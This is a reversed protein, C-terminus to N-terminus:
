SISRNTREFRVPSDLANYKLEENLTTDIAESDPCPDIATAFVFTRVYTPAGTAVTGVVDNVGSQSTVVSLPTSVVTCNVVRQSVTSLPATVVKVIAEDLM